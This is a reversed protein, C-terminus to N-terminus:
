STLSVMRFSRSQRLRPSRFAFSIKSFTAGWEKESGVLKLSSTVVDPVWTSKLERLDKVIGQKAIQCALSNQKQKKMHKTMWKQQDDIAKNTVLDTIKDAADGRHSRVPEMNWVDAPSKSMGWEFGEGQAEYMTRLSQAGTSSDAEDDNEGGARGAKKREKKALEKNFDKVLRIGVTVADRFDTFESRKKFEVELAVHDKKVKEAESAEKIQSKSEVFEKEIFDALAKQGLDTAAKMITVVNDKATVENKELDMTITENLEKTLDEKERVRGDMWGKLQLRRGSFWQALTVRKTEISVVKLKKSEKKAENEKV